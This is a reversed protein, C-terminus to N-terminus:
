VDDEKLITKIRVVLDRTKDLERDEQVSRTKWHYELSYIHAELLPLAEKLIDHM